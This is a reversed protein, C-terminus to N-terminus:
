GCAENANRDVHYLLQDIPEGNTGLQYVDGEVTMYYIQKYKERVLSLQSNKDKWMATLNQKPMCGGEGEGLKNKDGATWFNITDNAYEVVFVSKAAMAKYQEDTWAAKGEYETEGPPPSYRPNAANQSLLVLDVMASIATKFVKDDPGTELVKGGCLKFGATVLDLQDQGPKRGFVLM